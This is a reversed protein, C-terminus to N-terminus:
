QKDLKTTCKVRRSLRCRCGCMPVRHFENRIFSHIFHFRNAIFEDQSGDSTVHVHHAYSIRHRHFVFAIYKRHFFFKIWNFTRWGMGDIHVNLACVRLIISCIACTVYRFQCAFTRISIAFFFFIDILQVRVASRWSSWLSLSPSLFTASSFQHLFTAAVVVVVVVESAGHWDNFVTSPTDRICIKRKVCLMAYEVRKESPMHTAGNASKHVLVNLLNRLLTWRYASTTKTMMIMMMLMKTSTASWRLICCATWKQTEIQGRECGILEIKQKTKKRPNSFTENLMKIQLMTASLLNSLSPAHSALTNNAGYAEDTKTHRRNEKQVCCVCTHWQRCRRRWRTVFIPFYPLLVVVIHHRHLCSSRVNNQSFKWTATKPDSKIRHTCQATNPITKRTKGISHLCVTPKTEIQWYRAFLNPSACACLRCEFCCKELFFRTKSFNKQKIRTRLIVRWMTSWFPLFQFYWLTIQSTLRHTRTHRPELLWRSRIQTLKRKINWKVVNQTQQSAKNKPQSNRIGFTGFVLEFKQHNGNKGHSLHTCCDVM